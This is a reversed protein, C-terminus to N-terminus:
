RLTEDQGPHVIAVTDITFGTAVHSGVPMRPLPVVDSVLDKM